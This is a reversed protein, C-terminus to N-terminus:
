KQGTGKKSNEQIKKAQYTSLIKGIFRQKQEESLFNLKNIHAEIEKKTNDNIQQKNLEEKTLFEPKDEIFEDEQQTKESFNKYNFIIDKIEIDLPKSYSNIKKLIKEKLLSLEQVVIPSKASVFIKSGKISYPKTFKVFKAGVIDKWFSFITSHRIVAEFEDTKAQAFTSSAILEGISLTSNIKKM